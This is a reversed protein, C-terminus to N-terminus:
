GGGGGRPSEYTLLSETASRVTAADPGTVIVVGHDFERTLAHRSDDSWSAWTGLQWRALNVAAGKRADKLHHTVLAAPGHDATQVVQAESAGDEVVLRWSGDRYEAATVVWRRGDPVFPALGGRAARQVADRYDIEPPPAPKESRTPSPASPTSPSGTDSTEAAPSAGADDDDAGLAFAVAVVAALVAVVSAAGAWAGRSWNGISM